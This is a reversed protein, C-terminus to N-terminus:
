RLEKQPPQTPKVPDGDRVAGEFTVQEEGIIRNEKVLKHHKVGVFRAIVAWASVIGLLIPATYSITHVPALNRFLANIGAGAGKVSRIGFVDIWGKAKFKVDRSTPIYLIEKAPNNLTYALGKLIVMSTLVISLVPFIRVGCIVLGTAIPFFLLCIRLGLTRLFFSTGVLAFMLALGNAMMGYRAYFEAFAEKTPYVQHALLSMQFELMAGVIEYGTTIVFIGMLYPNTILLRLGEFFGTKPKNARFFPITEQSKTRDISRNIIFPVLSICATAFMILIPLGLTRSYNAVLFTGSITGVQTISLIMGYGRKAEDTKTQTAVFSWFLAPTLAGFSEVIVYGIWGVINGPIWSPSFRSHIPYAAFFAMALFSLIYFPYIIFFLREKKFLDILKSYILVLPIIFFLSAIKGWPQWRVGVLDIFIAERIGRLMWYPGITLMLALSFLGFKKLESLSLDGWVMRLPKPLM